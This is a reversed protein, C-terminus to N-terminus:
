AASASLLGGCFSAMCLVLEAAAARALVARAEVLFLTGAETLEIGRRVRHFLKTGYREEM